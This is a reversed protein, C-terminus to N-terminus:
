LIINENLFINNKREYGITTEPGHGSFVKFDDPLTLIENKISKMLQEGSGGPLDVRGVSGNFLTDGSFIVRQNHEVLCISGETHGPTYRIEFRLSGCEIVDLHNLYSKVEVEEITFPLPFITHENPNKLRFDDKEHIFVPAMLTRGLVAAEGAHDWHSHTLYIGKLVIKNKEILSQFEFLSDLPADIIIGNGSEEDHILYGNTLIPGSEIVEIKM